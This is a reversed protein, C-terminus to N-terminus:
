GLLEGQGAQLCPDATGLRFKGARRAVQEQGLEDTDIFAQKRILAFLEPSGSASRSRLRCPWASFQPM